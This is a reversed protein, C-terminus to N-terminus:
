RENYHGAELECTEQGGHLKSKKPGVFIEHEAEKMIPPLDHLNGIQQFIIDQSAPTVQV